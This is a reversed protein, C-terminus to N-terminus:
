LHALMKEIDLHLPCGATQASLAALTGAASARHAQLADADRWRLAPSAWGCHPSRAAGSIIGDFALRSRGGSNTVAACRPM